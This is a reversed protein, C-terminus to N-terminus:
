GHVRAIEERAIEVWRSANYPNGGITNNDKMIFEPVCNKSYEVAERLQSRVLDEDMVKSALPTPLLKHSAIYQMGLLEETRSRDSWPSCSVRRLNPLQKLYQWRGEYPECCCCCNLGFRAALRKHYPFIFEGYAEPSISVTEQSELLGWMHAAQVGGEAVTPIEDTFGFGGSGVYHNGTNQTLLGDREMRDIRDLNGQCLFEMTKHLYEPELIFDCLFEEFGRLDIYSWTLGMSWWWMTYRRVPMIDRFVEEALGLLEASQQHDVVFEPFRLKEFDREYDELAGEMKYSGGHEGGVRRIPLGWGTDTYAHPVEFGDDIVRDDKLVTGWHIQKRLKLEWERALPGTCALSEPLIIENWGNEPDIFVLPQNTKLDNHATWLKRKEQECPRQSLTHVQQGLARLVDREADDIRLSEYVAMTM